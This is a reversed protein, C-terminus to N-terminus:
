AELLDAVMRAKVAHDFARDPDSFILAGAEISSQQMKEIVTRVTALDGKSQYVITYLSNGSLFEEDGSFCGGFGHPLEHVPLGELCVPLDPFTLRLKELFRHSASLSDGVDIVLADLQEGFATVLTELDPVIAERRDPHFRVPDIAAIFRFEPDTDEVWCRVGDPNMQHLGDAPILVSRLHNAYWSLRWEPPLDADYFTGAWAPYCWGRTGIRLADRM